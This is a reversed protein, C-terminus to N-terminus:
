VILETICDQYTRTIFSAAQQQYLALARQFYVSFGRGSLGLDSVKLTKVVSVFDQSVNEVVKFIWFLVWTLM